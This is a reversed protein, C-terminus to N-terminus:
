KQTPEQKKTNMHHTKKAKHQAKAHHATAHKATAQATPQAPTGATSAAFAPSAMALGLAATSCAALYAIRSRTTM